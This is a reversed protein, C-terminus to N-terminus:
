IIIEKIKNIIITTSKNLTLDILEINKLIPHKKIIEEKKYDTGKFWIEPEIINMINDLEMELADDTEEYM